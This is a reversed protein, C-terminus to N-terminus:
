ADTCRPLFVEAFRWLKRNRSWTKQVAQSNVQLALTARIQAKIQSRLRNSFYPSELQSLLTDRLNNADIEEKEEEEIEPDEDEPQQSTRGIRNNSFDYRSDRNRFEEM